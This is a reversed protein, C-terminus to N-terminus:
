TKAKGTKRSVLRLLVRGLWFITWAGTLMGALAIQGDNVIPKITVGKDDIVAMAIPKVRYGGGGGGGVNSDEEDGAMGGGLGFGYTASAIPIVTKGNSEIPAGFVGNVSAQQHTDALAEFFRDLNFTSAM